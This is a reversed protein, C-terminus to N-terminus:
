ILCLTGKDSIIKNAQTSNEISKEKYKNKTNSSSINPINMPKHAGVM